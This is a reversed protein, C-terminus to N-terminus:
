LKQNLGPFEMTGFLQIYMSERALRIQENGYCKEFPIFELDSLSHGPQRFHSGVPTKTNKHCEQTVTAKHGRFRTEGSKGSTGIYQPRHPCTRDEKTCHLDYIINESKCTIVGKIPIMEGTKSIKVEKIVRQKKNGGTFPCLHCGFEWCPYFGDAKRRKSKRNKPPLRARILDDKLNKPRSNCVM